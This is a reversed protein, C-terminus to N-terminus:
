AATTRKHEELSGNLRAIQAATLQADPVDQGLMSKKWAQWQQPNRVLGLAKVEEKVAALVATHDSGSAGQSPSSPSARTHLSTAPAPSAAQFDDLGEYELEDDCAVLAYETGIGMDAVARSKALKEVKDLLSLRGQKFGTGKGQGLASELAIAKVIVFDREVDLHIIEADLIGGPYRLRFEYIRWNAPYYDKLGEKTKVKVLHEHPNFTKQNPTLGSHESMCAKREKQQALLFGEIL